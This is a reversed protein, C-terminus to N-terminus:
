KTRDQIRDGIQFEDEAPESTASGPTQMLRRNLNSADREVSTLSLM